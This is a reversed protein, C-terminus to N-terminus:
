VAENVIKRWIDKPINNYLGIRRNARMNRSWCQHSNLKFYKWMFDEPCHTHKTLNCKKCSLFLNAIGDLGNDGKLDDIEDLKWEQWKHKSTFHDVEEAPRNCYFCRGNTKQAIKLLLKQSIQKM